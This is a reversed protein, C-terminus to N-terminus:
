VNPKGGQATEDAAGQRRSSNGWYFGVLTAIVGLLFPVITKAQETGTEPMPSFTVAAMYAMMVLILLVAIKIGITADRM